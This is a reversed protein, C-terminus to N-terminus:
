GLRRMDRRTGGVFDTHEVHEQRYTSPTAGKFQDNSGFAVHDGLKEDTLVLGTVPRLRGNEIATQLAPNFGAIAMEAITARMRFADEADGGLPKRDYPELGTYHRLIRVSEEDPAEVRVVRGARVEIRYPAHIVGHITREPIQFVIVGRMSDEIPAVFVETTPQNTIRSHYETTGALSNVGVHGCDLIVPRDRVEYVIDTGDERRYQLRGGKRSAHITLEVAEIGLAIARLEDAGVAMSKFVLSRWEPLTWAKEPPLHENLRDVDLQSPDLWIDHSLLRGDVRLQGIPALARGVVKAYFDVGPVHATAPDPSTGMPVVWHGRGGEQIPALLSRYCAEVGALIAPDASAPDFRQGIPGPRPTASSGREAGPLTTTAERAADHAAQLLQNIEAGLSVMGLIVQCSVGREVLAQATECGLALASPRAHIVARDGRQYTGNSNLMTEVAARLESDGSSEPTVSVLGVRGRRWERLTSEFWIGDEIQRRTMQVFHADTM